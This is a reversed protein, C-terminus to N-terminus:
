KDVAQDVHAMHLLCALGKGGIFGDARLAVPYSEKRIQVVSRDLIGSQKWIIYVLDISQLRIDDDQAAINHFFASGPIGHVLGKGLQPLQLRRQAHVIDVAIVVPM